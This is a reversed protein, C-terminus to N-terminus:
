ETSTKDAASDGPRGAKPKVLVQLTQLLLFVLVPVLIFVPWLRWVPWNRMPLHLGEVVAALLIVLLVATLTLCGGVAMVGKFSEEESREEALLEITRGKQISRDISSVVELDHCVASWDTTPERHALRERINTWFRIWEEDRDIDLQEGDAAEIRLRWTVDGGRRAAPMVLTAQGASGVLTLRTEEQHTAPGVSWRSPFTATGQLNVLLNALSPLERRKPGLPDVMAETIPGSATVKKIPGLLRRLLPVDESFAKLVAARDRERLGRELTVYEITGISNDEGQAMQALRVFAPHESGRHHVLVTRRDRTAMDIEYALLLDCTPHVLLLPVEEAILKRLQDARLEDGAMGDAQNGDTKGQSVVVLDVSGELLLWEWDPDNVRTQPSLQRLLPEFEAPTNYAAVLTAEVREVAWRVLALTEEDLGLLALRM